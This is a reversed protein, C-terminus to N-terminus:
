HCRRLGDQLLRSSPAAEAVAAEGAYYVVLIFGLVLLIKASVMSDILFIVFALVAISWVLSIGQSHFCPEEVDLGV